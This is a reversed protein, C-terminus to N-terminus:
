NESPQPLLQLTCLQLLATCRLNCKAILDDQNPDSPQGMKLGESVSRLSNM